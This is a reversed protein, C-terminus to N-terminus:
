IPMKVFRPLDNRYGYIIHVDLAYIIHMVSHHTSTCQTKTKFFLNTNLLLQGNGNNHSHEDHDYLLRDACHM